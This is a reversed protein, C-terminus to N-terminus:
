VGAVDGPQGYGIFTHQEIDIVGCVVLSRQLLVSKEL